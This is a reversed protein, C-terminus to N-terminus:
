AVIEILEGAAGRECSVAVAGRYPPEPAPPSIGAASTGQFTVIAIGAPLGTAPLPRAAGPMEDAEVYCRGALPLAAIKFRAERPLGFELAMTQVRSEMAPTEPVGFRSAYHRQLSDLSSGGVIVIFARDVPSRAPPADLGPVPRKFETLYCIEGGPGRVQMARIDPCFSLDMPPAVIEFPSDGLTGAIADVNQVMLEAANWGHGSFARYAGTAPREIFRFVFDEASAPAMLLWPSGAVEPASWLGALAPSVRGRGLSRYGLWGGYAAESAALSPTVVTVAAIPGIAPAPKDGSM